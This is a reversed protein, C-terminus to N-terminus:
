STHAIFDIERGCTPFIETMNGAFEIVKQRECLVIKGDNDMQQIVRRSPEEFTLIASAAAMEPM